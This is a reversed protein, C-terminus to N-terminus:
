EQWARHGLMIGSAELRHKRPYSDTLLSLVPNQLHIQLSISSDRHSSIWTHRHSHEIDPTMQQLARHPSICWSRLATKMGGWQRHSLQTIIALAGNPTINSVEKQEPAQVIGITHTKNTHHPASDKIM